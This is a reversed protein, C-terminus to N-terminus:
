NLDNNEAQSYQANYADIRRIVNTFFATMFGIVVGTGVFVGTPRINKTIADLNKKGNKFNERAQINLSKIIYMLAYRLSSNLKRINSPTLTKSDYMRTFTDTAETKASSNKISEIEASKIKQVKLSLENLSENYNEDQEQDTVPILYKLSYGALAGIASSKVYSMKNSSDPSKQVPSLAM